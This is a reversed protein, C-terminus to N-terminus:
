HVHGKMKTKKTAKWGYIEENKKEPAAEFDRVGEIKLSVVPVVQYVPLVVSDLLKGHFSMVIIVNDWKKRFLRSLVILRLLWM